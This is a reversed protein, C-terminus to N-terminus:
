KKNKEYGCRECQWNPMIEMDASEKACEPCKPVYNKRYFDARNNLLEIIEKWKKLEEQQEKNIKLIRKNLNNMEINVEQQEKALKLLKKM